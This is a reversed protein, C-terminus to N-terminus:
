AKTNADASKAAEAADKLNPVSTDDYVKIGAEAAMRSAGSVVKAIYEYATNGSADPYATITPSYKVADGDTYEVDDLDTVQGQPIVIRRRVEDVLQRVAVAIRGPRHRRQKISGSRFLM